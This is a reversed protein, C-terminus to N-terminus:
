IFTIILLHFLLLSLLLIKQVVSDSINPLLKFKEAWGGSFSLGKFNKAFFIKTQSLHAM